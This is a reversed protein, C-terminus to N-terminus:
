QWCELATPISLGGQGRGAGGSAVASSGERLQPSYVVEFGRRVDHLFAGPLWRCSM